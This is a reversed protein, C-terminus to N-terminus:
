RDSGDSNPMFADAAHYVFTHSTPDVPMEVTNNPTKRATTRRWSMMTTRM